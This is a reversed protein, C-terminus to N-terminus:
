REGHVQVLNVDNFRREDGNSLYFTRNFRGNVAPRLNGISLVSSFSKGDASQVSSGIRIESAARLQVGHRALKIKEFRLVDAEALAIANAIRKAQTRLSTLYRRTETANM